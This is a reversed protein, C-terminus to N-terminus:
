RRGFHKEIEKRLEEAYKNKKYVEIQKRQEILGRIKKNKLEIVKEFRKIELTSSRNSTDIAMSLAISVAAMVMLVSGFM